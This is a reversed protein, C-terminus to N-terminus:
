VSPWLDKEKEEVKAEEAETKSVVVEDLHANQPARTVTASAEAYIHGIINIPTNM